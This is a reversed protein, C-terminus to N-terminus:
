SSSVVRTIEPFERIRNKLAFITLYALAIGATGALVRAIENAQRWLVGTLVYLLLFALIPVILVLFGAKVAKGPAVLYEVRDGPALLLSRTNRVAFLRERRAPFIALEHHHSSSSNV